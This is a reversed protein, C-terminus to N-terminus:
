TRPLQTWGSLGYLIDTYAHAPDPYVDAAGPFPLAIAQGVTDGLAYRRVGISTGERIRAVLADRNLSFDELVRNEPRSAVVRALALESENLDLKLVHNRSANINTM